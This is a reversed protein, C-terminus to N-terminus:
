LFMSPRVSKALTGRTTTASCAGGAAQFVAVHGGEGDAGFYGQGRGGEPLAHGKGFGVLFQPRPCAHGDGWVPLFFWQGSPGGFVEGEGAPHVDQADDGHVLVAGVEFVDFCLAAKRFVRVREDVASPSVFADGGGCGLAAKDGIFDVIVTSDFAQVKKQPRDVEQQKLISVQAHGM